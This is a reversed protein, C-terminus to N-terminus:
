FVFAIMLVLVLAILSYFLDIKQESHIEWGLIKFPSGKSIDGTLGLLDGYETTAVFAEIKAGKMVSAKLLRHYWHRDVFYFSIWALLAGLIIVDASSVGVSLVKFADASPAIRSAKAAEFSASQTQSWVLAAAAIAATLVTVALNRIQMEITNFHQQVDVTKKWAELALEVKDKTTIENM